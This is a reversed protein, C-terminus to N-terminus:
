SNVASILLALLRELEGLTLQLFHRGNTSAVYQALDEETFPLNPCPEKADVWFNILLNGFEQLLDMTGENLSRAITTGLRMTVNHLNISSNQADERTIRKENLTPLSHAIGYADLILAIFHTIHEGVHNIMIQINRIGSSSPQQKISDESNGEPIETSSVSTENQTELTNATESSEGGIPFIYDKFQGDKFFSYLNQVNAVLTNVDGRGKMCDEVIRKIKKILEKVEGPFRDSMVAIWHKEWCSFVDNISWPPKRMVIKIWLDGYTDKMIFELIRSLTVKLSTNIKCLLEQNDSNCKKIKKLPSLEIEESTSPSKRIQKLNSSECIMKEYELPIESKNHLSNAAFDGYVIDVRTEDINVAMEHQELKQRLGRIGLAVIASMIAKNRLNIDNSLLCVELGQEKMILCCDRILDDGSPRQSKSLTKRYNEYSQGQVRPDSKEFHNNCWRIAEQCAKGISEKKKLGDMEQLAIYPIVIIVEKGAIEKTKLSEIFNIDQILVNTDVVIYVSKSSSNISSTVLPIGETKQTHHVSERFNAIESVIEQEEVEMATVEDYDNEDDLVCVLKQKCVPIPLRPSKQREKTRQLSKKPPQPEEIRKLSTELPQREETRKLSMELPQREETRKLSTELPQREETRKLSKKLSQPEDKCKIFFNYVDYDKINNKKDSENINERSSKSEEDRIPSSSIEKIIAKILAEDKKAKKSAQSKKAKAIRRKNTLTLEVQEKCKLKDDLILPKVDVKVEPTTKKKQSIDETKVWQTTKALKQARLLIPHISVSNKSAKGSDEKVDSLVKSDTKAKIVFKVPTRNKWKQEEIVKDSDSNINSCGEAVPSVKDLNENHTIKSDQYKVDDKEEEKNGEPENISCKELKAVKMKVKKTKLPSKKQKQLKESANEGSEPILSPHMWSSKGTKTNFYYTATPCRQSTKRVWHKPLSTKDSMTSM